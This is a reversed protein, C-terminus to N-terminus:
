PQVVVMCPPLWSMSRSLASLPGHLAGTLRPCRPAAPRAGPRMGPWRRWVLGQRWRTSCGRCRAAGAACRWCAGQSGRPEQQQRQAQQGAGAPRRAARAQRPQPARQGRQPQQPQGVAPALGKRTAALLAHPPMGMQSGRVTTTKMRRRERMRRTAPMWSRSWAAHVALSSFADARAHMTV